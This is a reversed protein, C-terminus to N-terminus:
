YVEWWDGAAETWYGGAGEPFVMFAPGPRTDVLRRIDQHRLYDASFDVDENQLRPYHTDIAQWGNLALPEVPRILGTFVLLVLLMQRPWTQHFPLILLSLALGFWGFSPFVVGTATLPNGFGFLGLPPVSILLLAAATRWLASRYSIAMHRHWLFSWPVALAANSAIWLSWGAALPAHEGFFVAAGGPVGRTVMEFYAFAILWAHPRSVAQQAPGGLKSLRSLSRLEPRDGQPSYHRNHQWVSRHRLLGRSRRHNTSRMPRGIASHRIPGPPTTARSGAASAWAPRPVPPTPACTYIRM